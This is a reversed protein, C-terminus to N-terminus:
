TGSALLSSYLREQERLMTYCDFEKVQEKGKKGIERV